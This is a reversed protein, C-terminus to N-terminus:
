LQPTAPPQGGAVPIPKSREHVVEDHAAIAEPHLHINAQAALQAKGEPPLDKFNISKSPEDKAAGAAAQQKMQIAQAVRPDGGYLLEPANAELWVNAAMEEPNPYELKKYLDILAMKGKTALDMAEKAESGADKPLISGEKITVKIKPHPQGTYKEDFVYIMQVAYNFIDDALQELYEGFGGSIRADDLNKNFVATRIAQVGGGQQPTFGRTGFIYQVRQRVDTLQQYITVPLPPASMRAIAENVAGAPIYVTGGKRIAETVGKSQQLSLGSREGSVVMGGNMSDANKDIQKVRKNIIDQMALNQGILSTDDVPQKGLNFVSLFIYPMKEASLHNQAQVTQTQPKGDEGIIPTGDPDNLPIQQQYNWNPNKSKLLVKDGMTWCLYKDTWWEIFGLETGLDNKCLGNITEKYGEQTGDEEALLDLMLAAELKRHEGVFKGSYGDEDVTAEADLIMKRPRIIKVTPIDKDADWGLKPVGLLYIAWHRAAKKLKLRLKIEDAWEGLMNKLDTCYKLNQPNPDEKGDLSVVPDPNQQTVQPLYTELADFIVNDVQQRTKEIRAQQFHKGMWYAENEDGHQIWDSYVSSSTWQKEWKQTLKILDDNSMDLTLEPFKESVIGQQTEQAQEDGKRKNISKGLSYFAELIPNTM